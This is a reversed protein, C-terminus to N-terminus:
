FEMKFHHGNENWIRIKGNLNKSYGKIIRMGQSGERPTTSEDVGIGDDWVHLYRNTKDAALQVNIEGTKRERFAYKEANTLLETIIYALPVAEDKSIPVSCEHRIIFKNREGFTKEFDNCISALLDNFSKEASNSNSYLTAYLNNITKIRKDLDSLTEKDSTTASALSIMGLISNFFNGTRHKLESQLQEIESYQKRIKKSQQLSRTFLVTIVVALISLVWLFSNRTQISQDKVNILQNQLSISDDKQKTKYKTELEILQKNSIMGVASDMPRTIISDFFAKSMNTDISSIKQYVNIFDQTNDKILEKSLTFSQLTTKLLNGPIEKRAIELAKTETSDGTSVKRKSGSVFANTLIEIKDISPNRLEEKIKRANELYKSANTSDGLMTFIASKYFYSMAISPKLGFKEAQPEINNLIKLCKDFRYKSFYSNAQLMATNVANTNDGVSIFQHYSKDYYEEMAPMNNALGYANALKSNILAQPRIDGKKKYYELAGLLYNEASDIKGQVAYVQGLNGTIRMIDDYENEDKAIQLALHFTQISLNFNFSRYYYNALNNYIDSKHHIFSNNKVLQLAEDYSKKAPILSLKDLYSNGRKNLSLYILEVDDIKRALLLAQDAYFLGSDLQGLKSYAHSLNIQAKALFKDFMLEESIKASKLGYVIADKPQADLYMDSLRLFTFARTSDSIGKEKSQRLFYRTSDIQANIKFASLIFFSIYFLRM